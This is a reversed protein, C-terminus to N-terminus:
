SSSKEWSSSYKLSSNLHQYVSEIEQEVISFESLIQYYLYKEYKSPNFNGEIINPLLIRAEETHGLKLECLSIWLKSEIDYKSNPYKELLISFHEISGQFDDKFLMSVSIIYYADEVYKSSPYKQLVIKSNVIAEDLLNKAEIPLDTERYDRLDIILKAKKFSEEANYFTNFYVCSSFFFLFLFIVIKRLSTIHYDSLM